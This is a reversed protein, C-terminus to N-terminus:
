SVFCRVSSATVASVCYMLRLGRSVVASASSAFSYEVCACVKAVWYWFAECLTEATERGLATNPGGAVEGSPFAYLESESLSGMAPANCVM